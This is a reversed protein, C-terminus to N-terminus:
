EGKLNGWLIALPIAFYEREEIKFPLVRTGTYFVIGRKLKDGVLRSFRAIGKFDSERM